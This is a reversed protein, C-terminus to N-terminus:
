AKLNSPQTRARAEELAKIAVKAYILTTDPRARGLLQQILRIEAGNEVMPTACSHRFLQRSGRKGIDAAGATKTAWDGVYTASMRKGYGSLFLAQEGQNVLLHPGPGSM